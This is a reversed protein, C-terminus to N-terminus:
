WGLLVISGIALVGLLILTVLVMGFAYLEQKQESNLDNTM